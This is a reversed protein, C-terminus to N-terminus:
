FYCYLPKKKQKLRKKKLACVSSFLIIQLPKKKRLFMTQHKSLTNKLKFIKIIFYDVIINCKQFFVYFHTM